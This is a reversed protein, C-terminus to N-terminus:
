VYEPVPVIGNDLVWTGAVTFNNGNGSKDKGTRSLNDVWLWSWVGQHMPALQSRQAKLEDANLVRNYVVANGIVIPGNDAFSNAGFYLTPGGAGQAASNNSTTLAMPKTQRQHWASCTAGNATPFTVGLYTWEGTVATFLTVPSANSAYLETILTNNQSEVGADTTTTHVTVINTYAAPTARWNWWMCVSMGTTPIALNLGGSTNSYIAM